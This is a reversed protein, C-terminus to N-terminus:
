PHCRSMAIKETIERRGSNNLEMSLTWSQAPQIFSNKFPKQCLIGPAKELSLLIFISIGANLLKIHNQWRM